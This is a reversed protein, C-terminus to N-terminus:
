GEGAYDYNPKLPYVLLILFIVDMYSFGYFIGYNAACYILIASIALINRWKMYVLYFIFFLLTLLIGHTALLQLYSNHAHILKFSDTRPLYRYFMLKDSGNGFWPHKEIFNIYNIWIRKRGSSQVGEAQLMLRDGLGQLEPDTQGKALRIANTNELTKKQTSEEEVEFASDADKDGRTLQYKLPTALAIVLILVAARFLIYPSRRDTPKKFIEFVFTIGWYLLAVFIPIRSFTVLMGGLLLIRLIWEWKKDMRVFDILIFAIFLKQGLVSSNASLGYVRSNYLLSYDRIVGFDGLNMVFSRTGFAYETLAIVSEVATMIVLFRFLRLSFSLRSTLILLPFLYFPAYYDRLGYIVHGNVCKNVFAIIMILAVLWVVLHKRAFPETRFNQWLAVLREREFFLVAFAFILYFQVPIGAFTPLLLLFAYLADLYGRDKELDNLQKM